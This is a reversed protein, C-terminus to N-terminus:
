RKKLQTALWVYEDMFTKVSKEFTTDVLNGNEDFKNTMQPVVLMQPSAIGFLAPILQQLQMAARMGGMAGESATVIGFAKRSQKPFHDFMNKVAPAYSGNYEPTVIIFGSADFIRAAVPQLSVPAQSQEKYVTDILPFVHHRLDILGFNISPYLKSGQQQLHLAVRYSLSQLRMSSSIIEIQM